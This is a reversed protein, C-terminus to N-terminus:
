AEERADSTADVGRHLHAQTKADEGDRVGDDDLHHLLRGFGEVGVGGVVRDDLAHRGRVTDTEM